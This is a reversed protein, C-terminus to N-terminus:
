CVAERKAHAEDEKRRQEDLERRKQDLLAQGRMFNDRREDESAKRQPMSCLPLVAHRSIPAQSSSCGRCCTSLVYMPVNGTKIELHPPLTAPLQAGKNVCNILHQALIFEERNLKGDKDQDALNRGRTM